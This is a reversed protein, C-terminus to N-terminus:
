TINYEFETLTKTDITRYQYLTQNTEDAFQVTIISSSFDTTNDFGNGDTITANNNTSLFYVFQDTPSVIQTISDESQVKKNLNAALESYTKNNFDEIFSVGHYQPNFFTVTSSKPVSRAGIGTTTPAFTVNFSKKFTEDGPVNNYIQTSNPNDIVDLGDFTATSIIDDNLNVSYTFTIDRAIRKEPRSPANNSISISGPTFLLNKLDLIEQTTFDNGSQTINQFFGGSEILIGPQGDAAEVVVDGQNIITSQTISQTISQTLHNNVISSSFQSFNYNIISGTQYVVQDEVIEIVNHTTTTEITTPDNVSIDIITNESPFDIVVTNITPTIDLTTSNISSDTEIIELQTPNNDVIEIQGGGSEIIELLVKSEEIIETINGM